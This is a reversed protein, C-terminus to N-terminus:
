FLELQKITTPNISIGIVRYWVDEGSYKSGKELISMNYYAEEKTLCMRFAKKWKKETKDFYHIFWRKVKM